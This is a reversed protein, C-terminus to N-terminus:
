ANPHWAVPAVDRAACFIQWEGPVGKLVHAGRPEFEIQSGAVLDKVTSSVLVEGSGALAAIRAGIHVAMGAVDDGLLECEGTHIGARIEIGDRRLDEVLGAACRIARAPGDFTALVGDGTSKIKRGRAREIQSGTLEDHRELLDRWRADGLEAARRTSDVIDTFMVTALAREPEAVNRAGTLFEEVEEVIADADGLFPLHDIGELEVLRAGPVSAAIVRAGDIPIYDGRRHLVLTPVRVEPLVATVDTEVWAEILARAMAPSVAAREYAGMAERLRGDHARSPAFFDILGGEGWSHRVMEAFEPKPGHSRGDPFSGYMVLALTREPYTAAFLAAMAGGESYGFLAARRSGVADLVARVDEMREELTAAGPAPDSLGTGRKDFRILRSFAALRGVFRQFGPGSWDLDLHSIFGPVIVLDIPGDGLVQYAISVDGNRAYRTKLTM